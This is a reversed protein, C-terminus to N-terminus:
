KLIEEIYSIQSKEHIKKFNLLLKKNDIKIDLFQDLLNMKLKRNIKKYKILSILITALLLEEESVSPSKKSM